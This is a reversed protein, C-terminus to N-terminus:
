SGGVWKWKANRHLSIDGSRVARWMGFLGGVPWLEMVTQAWNRKEGVNKRIKDYISM